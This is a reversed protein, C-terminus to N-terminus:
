RSYVFDFSKTDTWLESNSGSHEFELSGFNQFDLLGGSRIVTKLVLIDLFASM